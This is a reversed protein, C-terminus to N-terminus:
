EISIIKIKKGNFEFEDNIGHGMMAKSIPADMSITYFVNNDILSKGCSVALYFNGISSYILAGKEVNKCIKEPKIMDLESIKMNWEMLQREIKEIEIHLMARATEYKDGVSSKTEEAASARYDELISNLLLIKSNILDTCYKHLKQKM